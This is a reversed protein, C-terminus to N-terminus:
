NNSSHSKLRKSKFLCLFIGSKMSLMRVRREFQLERLSPAKQRSAVTRIHGIISLSPLAIMCQLLHILAISFNATHNYYQLMSCLMIACCQFLVSFEQTWQNVTCLACEQTITSAETANFPISRSYECFNSTPIPMLADHVWNPRWCEDLMYDSKKKYYIYFFISGTKLQVKKPSPATFHSSGIFIPGSRYLSFLIDASSLIERGVDSSRISCTAQLGSQAGARYGSSLIMVSKRKVVELRQRLNSWNVNWFTRNRRRWCVKDIWTIMKSFLDNM